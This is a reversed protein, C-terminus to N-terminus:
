YVANNFGITKGDYALEFGKPLKQNIKTHEVEHAIHTFYTNKASTKKSFEIAEDISFHVNSLTKRLASIVLTNIHQLSQFISKSYTRIDCLYALDGLVFGTVEMKGQFYSLCLIEEDLFREKKKTIKQFKFHASYNKKNLFLYNFRTKIEKYTEKSLLCPLAKQTKFFFARLEDLGAIHDYHSHTLILGDLHQVNQKLLQMRVDPGADILIKKRDLTLLASPRTRQNKKNKSKCTKCSCGIVPVGTSAGTGLFTFRGKKM